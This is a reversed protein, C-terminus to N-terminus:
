KRDNVSMRPTTFRPPEYPDTLDGLDKNFYAPDLLEITGHRAPQPQKRLTSVTFPPGEAGASYAHHRHTRTPQPPMLWQKNAGIDHVSQNLSTSRSHAPASESNHVTLVPRRDEFGEGPSPRQAAALLQRRFDAPSPIFSANQHQGAKIHRAFAIAAWAVGVFCLVSIAFLIQM